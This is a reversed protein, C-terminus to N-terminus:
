RVQQIPLGQTRAHAHRRTSCSRLRYRQRHQRRGDTRCDIKSSAHIAVTARHMGDTPWLERRDFGRKKARHRRHFLGEALPSAIMALTDVGGASEGFLTVNSPNGGFAAINTKTWELARVIDLTGYNGSRDAPNGNDLAAHSFWGFVGLRYNISIVVVREDVALRAGNYSGGHGITNGGGHIWLM